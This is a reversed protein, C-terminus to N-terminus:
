QGQKLVLPLYVVRDTPMVRVTDSLIATTDLLASLTVTYWTYNSLGTLDHSRTASLSDTVVGFSGLGNTYEIQWTVTRPARVDWSLRIARDAPTGSLALEWSVPHPYTYPTYWALWVNPQACKYLTGSIPTSPNAGILGTLDTCSQDTAWYGVGPACTLPRQALTGCGVGATGDFGATVHNFFEINEVEEPPDNAIGRARDEFDMTVVAPIVAGTFTDLRNNWFYADHVKQCICDDTCNQRGIGQGPEPCRGPPYTLSTYSDSYEEWIEMDRDMFVNNMYINQGGRVNTVRGVGTAAMYNGYVETIQPGYIGCCQNGHTEVYSSGGSLTGTVTNYRVVYGGGANGAGCILGDIGSFSFTNDEIYWGDGAGLHMRDNVFSQWGVGQPYSANSDILTNGYFVGHVYGKVQVARHVGTFKNHHINVRRIAPLNPNDVWVGFKNRMGSRGAFTIGTVEFTHTDSLSDLHDRATADPVFKFFAEEVNDDSFGLTLITRDIGTGVIRIDKTIVIGSTWVCSGASCAPIVVTDGYDAASIAAAVDARSASAAVHTNATATGGAGPSCPAAGSTPMSLFLLPVLILILRCLIKHKIM